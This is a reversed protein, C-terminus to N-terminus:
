TGVEMSPELVKGCFPCFRIEVDQTAYERSSNDWCLRNGSRLQIGDECSEKNKKEGFEFASALSDIAMLATPIGDGISEGSIVEGNCFRCEKM